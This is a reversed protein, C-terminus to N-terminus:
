LRGIARDQQQNVQLLRDVMGIPAHTVIGLGFMIDRAQQGMPAGFAPRQNMHTVVRGLRIGMVPRPLGKVGEPRLGQWQRASSAQKVKPRVPQSPFNPVGFPNM